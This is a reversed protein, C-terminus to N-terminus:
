NKDVDAENTYKRLFNGFALLWYTENFSTVFIMGNM